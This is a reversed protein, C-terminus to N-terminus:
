ALPKQFNNQFNASFESGLAILLSFFRSKKHESRLVVGAAPAPARPADAPAAAAAPALAATGAARLLGLLLPLLRRLPRRDVLERAVLTRHEHVLEGHLHAM